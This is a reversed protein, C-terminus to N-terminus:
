NAAILLGRQYRARAKVHYFQGAAYDTELIHDIQEFHKTATPRNGIALNYEVLNLLVELKRRWNQLRHTVELAAELYFRSEEFKEQHLYILGLNNWASGLNAEDTQKNFFTEAQRAHREAVALQGKKVYASAMNLHISYIEGIEGVQQAKILAKHYYQLAQHPCDEYFKQLGLNIFGRMLGHHDPMAQWIDCAQRLHYEAKKWAGQWTYLLGLHNETHARGHDSDLIEFIHLAHCCLVEARHWRGQETYYFGLNSFARALNYRDDRRRAQRITRRNYVAAEKLRNQRQLLRALYATVVAHNISTDAEPLKKAARLLLDHWTDWHGRKEMYAAFLEILKPITPWATELELAFLMARVINNREHDWVEIATAEGKELWTLWYNLNILITQQFFRQRSQHQTLNVRAM